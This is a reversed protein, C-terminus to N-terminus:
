TALTWTWPENRNSIPPVFFYGGGIVTTDFELRRDSGASPTPFNENKMWARMIFEFPTSLSRAFAVFLL